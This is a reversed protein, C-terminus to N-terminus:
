SHPEAAAPAPKKAEPPPSANDIALAVRWPGNRQRKWITLYKGYSVEPKGDDGSRTSKSVGYTYGFDGPAYADVPEWRLAFGPTAFHGVLFQRAADKGVVMHSGAPLLIGDDAFYSLWAEAGNAATARDLERDTEMLSQAADRPASAATTRVGGLQFGILAGGLLAITTGFRPLIRM